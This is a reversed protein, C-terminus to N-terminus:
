HVSTRKARRAKAAKTRAAAAAKSAKSAIAKRQEATLRQNRAKVGKKGMQSFYRSLLESDPQEAMPPMTFTTLM